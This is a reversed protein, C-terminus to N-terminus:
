DIILPKIKEIFEDINQFKNLKIEQNEEQLGLALKYALDLPQIEVTNGELDLNLSFVLGDNFIGLCWNELFDNIPISEVKYESWDEILHEKAMDLSTWICMAEIPQNDDDLEYLSEVSAYSVNDKLAFICQSACIQQITSSNM